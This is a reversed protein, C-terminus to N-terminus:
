WGLVQGYGRGTFADLRASGDARPTIVADIEIGNGAPDLDDGTLYLAVRQGATHAGGSFLHVRGNALWLIGSAAADGNAGAPEVLLAWTGDM